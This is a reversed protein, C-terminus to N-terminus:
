RPPAAVSDVFDLIRARMDVTTRDSRCVEFRNHVNM